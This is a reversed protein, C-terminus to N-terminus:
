SRALWGFGFFGLLATVFTGFLRKSLPKQKHLLYM